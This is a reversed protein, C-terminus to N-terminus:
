EREHQTRMSFFFDHENKVDTVPRQYKKSSSTKILWNFIDLCNHLEEKESKISFNTINCTEFSRSFREGLKAKRSEDLEIDSKTWVLSAPREGISNGLRDTILQLSSRARGISKSFADSDAFLVFSDANQDIWRAGKANEDSANNGWSTFWEGPADTFIFDHHTNKNDKFSLHLLGPVRGANVSTHPPFTIQNDAGFTLFSSIHEWGILTYSGSFRLGDVRDGRRLLMYLTALFTTKGSNAPGILGIVHPRKVYTINKLDLEGLTNGTWTVSLEDLGQRPSSGEEVSDNTKHHKCEDQFNVLGLLCGETKPECYGKHVCDTM